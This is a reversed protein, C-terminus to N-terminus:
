QKHRIVSLVKGGSYTISLRANSYGFTASSDAPPGSLIFTGPTEGLIAEVQARTMGPTIMLPAVAPWLLGFWLTIALM